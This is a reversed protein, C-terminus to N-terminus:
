IKQVASIKKLNESITPAPCVEFPESTKPMGRLRTLSAAPSNQQSAPMKPHRCPRSDTPSKIVRWRSRSESNTFEHTAFIQRLM